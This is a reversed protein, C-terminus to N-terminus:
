ESSQLYGGLAQIVQQSNPLSIWLALATQQQGIDPPPLLKLRWDRNGKVSQMSMVVFDHRLTRGKNEGANVRATELGMGLYAVYLNYTQDQEFTVHLHDGQLNATLRGTPSSSDPWQTAGRFWARWEQSNIIIGPTYVQSILKERDYRRQRQSFEPRAFRDEWGIYDWYDVHFAIPVFSKFLSPDDKLSSLWQDAKPCSSCGESTFLEILETQQYSSQWQQAKASSFGCLLALITLGLKM